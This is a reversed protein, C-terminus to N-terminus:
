LIFRGLGQYEERPTRRLGAPSKMKANGWFSVFVSSFAFSRRRVTGKRAAAVRELMNEKERQDTAGSWQTLINGGAEGEFDESLITAWFHFLDIRKNDNRERIFYFWKFHMPRSLFPLNPPHPHRSQTFCKIQWSKKTGKEDFPFLFVGYAFWHIPERLVSNRYYILM